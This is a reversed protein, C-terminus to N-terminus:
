GRTSNFKTDLPPVDSIGRGGCFFQVFCIDKWFDNSICTATWLVYNRLFVIGFRHVQQPMYSRDGETLKQTFTCSYFRSECFPTTNGSTSDTGNDSSSFLATVHSGLALIPLFAVHTMHSTINVLSWQSILTLREHSFCILLGISPPLLAFVTSM